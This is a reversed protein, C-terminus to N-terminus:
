TMTLWSVSTPFFFSSKFSKGGVLTYLAFFAGINSVFSAAIISSTTLVTGIIIAIRFSVFDLIRNYLPALCFTMAFQGTVLWSVVSIPQETMEMLAPYFLAGCNLIGYHMGLVICTFIAVTWAPGRDIAKQRASMLPRMEM